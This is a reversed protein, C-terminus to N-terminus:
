ESKVSKSKVSKSKVSKTTVNEQKTSNEDALDNETDAKDTNEDEVVSEDEEANEVYSNGQPPTYIAKGPESLDFTGVSDEHMTANNIAESFMRIKRDLEIASGCNVEFRNDYKFSITLTNSIDIETVKSLVDVDELASLITKIANAKESDAIKLVKGKQAKTDTIGIVQPINGSPISGSIDIVRTQSDIVVRVGDVYVYAAPAIESIKVYLTPPFPKKSIEVDEIYPVDELCKKVEGKSIRFLNKGTLVSLNNEISGISLIENGSVGVTKINFVPTMMLIFVVILVLIIVSVSVKIKQVIQNKRRAKRNANKLLKDKHVEQINRRRTDM